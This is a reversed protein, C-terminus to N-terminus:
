PRFIKKLDQIKGIPKSQKLTLNEINKLQERLDDILM